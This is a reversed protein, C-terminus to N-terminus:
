KKQFNVDFDGRLEAAIGFQELLYFALEKCSISGYDM